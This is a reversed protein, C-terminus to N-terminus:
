FSARIWVIMEGKGRNAWYCYPVATLEAPETEINAPKYLEDNWGNQCIRRGKLKLVTTGGFLDPKFVEVPASLPDVIMASLNPGNDIEEMCYVLPGKMVAVKGADARVQPHAAIIEARIDFDIEVISTGCWKRSVSAYRDTVDSPEIDTGDIKIKWNKVYGPIRISLTFLLPEPVEVTLLSKGNELFTSHLELSIDKENMKTTTRNAIFLNLYLNENTISYIYNGLSALTRAINPPCCALTFWKQREPKVHAMSTHEMCSAPWVELPNVYFYTDGTLSIGALVTNYLAREVVDIYSADRKIRSMRIGFMALGISACTESYNAANPLDYDTTFRELWASSGISGTLYMRKLTINNWINECARLLEEDQYEAALDAMACYMYMARVAHGEATTQKRPPVHAQAYAPDYGYRELDENIPVFGDTKMEELFYNPTSGREDIFYKALDLYKRNGTVRFLKVLALEIEQHGPYGRIQGENRGFVRCLLDAFRISINLLTDKGTAESYAVAAEILHGACYLEHGQTLNNWPKGRKVVTYYTNIYGDPQQAKGILEIVEDAHQEMLKDPKAALSYAVAELWKSLDSDIFFLGGYSGQEEGAAVRYNSLCHNIETGEVRNNFVEWQYPLIVKSVLDSYRQWFNDIIEIKHLKVPELREM